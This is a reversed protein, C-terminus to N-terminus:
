ASARSNIEMGETVLKRIDNLRFPKAIFRAVGAQEMRQPDPRAGWGTIIAVPTKPSIAKIRKALQWGSMGPMGLDTLVMDFQNTKFASIGEKGDRAVTVQHGELSLIESLSNRIEPEDDVVLITAKRGEVSLDEPPTKTVSKSATPLKITFCSGKGKGGSLSIEGAHREIIRYSVSLGLGSSKPGKTTFFPDFIKRRIEKPIGMGTDAVSVENAKRNTETRITLEGGFPMADLANIVLNILVERLESPIGAVPRNAKLEEKVIFKIGKSESEDKWRPRTLEVVERVLQNLRIHVFDKQAKTRTFEQIRRVTEAADSAARDIIALGSLLHKTSSRRDKEGHTTLYLKMLEARGLIAALFNNFDHAVGGAMEGLARLKEAQLFKEEMQMRETIDHGIAITGVSKGTSDLIPKNAWSVWVRQGDKTTNVNENVQYKAPNRPIDLIMQELESPVITGVVNQDMIETSTYGFFRQAYENFFTVNGQLDMKIIMSNAHEVLERYNQESEILAREAEVRDTVDIAMEYRVMRGDSWRIARDICRYSRSNKRNKFEWITSKGLNEGFIRDNTCFACPRRKGHLGRYCEKGLIDKGFMDLAAKNAFLLEYSDPDSVYVIEDISDFIFLFQRREADLADEIRKRYTIDRGTALVASINGSQDFIPSLTMSFWLTKGGWSLSNEYDIPRANEFVWLSKEWFLDAVDKPLLENFTKGILDSSDTDYKEKGWFFSLCKGERDVVFILDQMAQLIAQLHQQSQSLAEETKKRSSIDRTIEVVSYVSGDEDFMPSSTVEWTIGDPNSIESTHIKGDDFTKLAPCWSCTGKMGHYVWHCPQGIIASGFLKKMISNTYSVEMDRNIVSIGDGIGEFIAKLKDREEKIARELDKKKSSKM